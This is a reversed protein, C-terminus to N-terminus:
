LACRYFVLVMPWIPWYRCTSTRISYKPAMNPGRVHRKPFICLFKYPTRTSLTFLPHSFDYDSQPVATSQRPLFLFVTAVHMLFSWCSNNIMLEFDYSFSRVITVFLLYAPVYRFLLNRKRKRSRPWTVDFTPIYNWVKEGSHSPWVRRYITSQSDM